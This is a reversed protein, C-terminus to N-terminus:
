QINEKNSKHTVAPNNAFVATVGFLIWDEDMRDDDSRAKRSGGKLGALLCRHQHEFWDELGVQLRFV